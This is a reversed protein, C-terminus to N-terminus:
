SRDFRKGFARTGGGVSEIRYRMDLRPPQQAFHTQALVWCMVGLAAIM